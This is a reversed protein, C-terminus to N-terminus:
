IKHTREVNCSNRKIRILIAFMYYLQFSARKEVAETYKFCCIFFLCFQADKKQSLLRQTQKRQFDTSLELFPLQLHALSRTGCQQPTPRATASLFHIQSAPITKQTRKQIKPPQNTIHNQNDQKYNINSTKKKAHKKTPIKNTKIHYLM